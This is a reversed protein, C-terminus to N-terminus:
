TSRLSALFEPTLVARTITHLGRNLGAAGRAFGLIQEETWESPAMLVRDGKTRLHMFRVTPPPGETFEQINAHFLSQRDQNANKLATHLRTAKDRHESLREDKVFWQQFIELKRKFEANPVARYTEPGHEEKNISLLLATLHQELRGWHLAALGIAFIIPFAYPPPDEIHGGVLRTPPSKKM